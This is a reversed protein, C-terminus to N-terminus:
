RTAYAGIDATESREQVGESLSYEFGVQYGDPIEVPASGAADVLISDAKPRFDGAVVDTFGPEGTFTLQEAWGKISGGERESEDRWQVITTSFANKGLNHVGSLRDLSVETAAQGPTASAAYFVNNWIEAREDGTSLEFISGSWAKSQDMRFAVTNLYFYLTGKRYTEVSGSDGGYHIAYSGDENGLSFLNGYVWTQHYSPLKGVVPFSDQAEVLDLLRQGGEIVNYRVVTGTSRDKLGGGLSGERTNGYHNFQYVTDEAEVYSQHEHDRDAVSNNTFENGDVLIHRSLVEESDGSAVFLGNGNGTIVCNRVTIWEGREVFIGAANDPYSAQAGSFDTFTNGPYAGTLELGSIVIYQPKAGWESGKPPSVTILGRDQTRGYTSVMDPRTTAGAGDIVPRRGQADPIGCVTIPADKKGKGAILIKEKYPEPRAYINVRDGPGLDLWPVDGIAALTKDPGVDYTKGTATAACSGDWVDPIHQEAVPSNAKTDSAEPTSACAVATAFTLAVLALRGVSGM